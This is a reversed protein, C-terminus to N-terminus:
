SSCAPGSIVRQLAKTILSSQGALEASLQTCMATSLRQGRLGSLAGLRVLEPLTNDKAKEYLVDRVTSREFHRLASLARQRDRNLAAHDALWLLAEPAEDVQAWEDAGPLDQPHWASLMQEVVPLASPASSRDLIPTATTVPHKPLATDILVVPSEDAHAANALTLLLLPIM